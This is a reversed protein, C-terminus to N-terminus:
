AEGEHPNESDETWRVPNGIIYERISDLERDSDIVHEYFGRQWVPKGITGRSSNIKRTVVSKFSRIITPIGHVHNPMVVFEDLEVHPFHKPIDIWCLRAMCGFDSYSMQGDVVSGFLCERNHTVITVYYPGPQTYDYGPIRVSRRRRRPVVAHGPVTRWPKRRDRTPQARPKHAPPCLKIVM